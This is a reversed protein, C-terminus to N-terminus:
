CDLKVNQKFRSRRQLNLSRQFVPLALLSIGMLIGFILAGQQYGLKQLLAGGIVPGISAGLFKFESAGYYTGRLDNPSLQGIVVETLVFCLIEGISFIVMSLILLLPHHFVGFGLLGLAFFISGLQIGTIPAFRNAFRIIPYQLTLITLPNALYVMSYEAVGNPFLPSNGMYQPLTSAMHSYAFFVLINGLLVYRFTKDTVIVQFAKSFAIRETQTNQITQNYRQKLVMNSFAYIFNIAATIYFPSASHSSGLYAGLIPGVAAGINITFYRINFVALRQEAPTTDTLLARAAPEFLCRSFGNLASLMFFFITSDAVAFGLFVFGSLLSGMIMVTLRGIRDSLIGGFFGGFTSVLPSIGIIAGIISLDLGKTQHLFIALFPMTMFFVTRSMFTGIIVSWALLDMRPLISRMRSLFSTLM